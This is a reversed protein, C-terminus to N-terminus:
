FKYKVSVEWNRPEAKTVILTPAFSSGIFYEEDTVNNVRLFVEWKEGRYFLNANWTFASPLKITKENDNFFSSKYQPGAGFGFGNDFTYTAFLNATFLPYGQRVRDPNNAYRAQYQAPTLSPFSGKSNNAGYQISGSTLAVNQATLPLTTFPFDGQYVSEQQGINSSITFHNTPKYVAEIEYGRSEYSSEGSGIISESLVTKEFKYASATLFLKRDLLAFKTGVEYFPAQIFNRETGIGGTQGPAVSTGDQIAAYISWWDSIKFIPNISYNQYEEDGRKSGGANKSENPGKKSFRTLEHRIGTYVTFFKTFDVKTQLFAGFQDSTSKDGSVLAWGISPGALSISGPPIKGNSIDRRNFPELFFDVADNVTQRRWEVGYQLAIPIKGLDHKEEILLKENVAYGESDHAFGYSSFKETESSEVLSKLTISRGDGKWTLDGFWVGIQSNAYDNRDALVTDGGIKTTLAKGGAAFYGPTYKYGYLNGGLNVLTMQAAPGSTYAGGPGTPVGFVKQFDAARVVLAIDPNYIGKFASFQQNPSFNGYTAPNAFGQYPGSTAILNPDADGIIYNSNDILDQTVRNWGANENSKFNYYEGGTFFTLKPTLQGKLAGYVSVYDNKLNKYYAESQQNTISIRYAMPKGLLEVPGGVDVQAKYKNYEGLTFEVSGRQKDFYPTKPITEVYGGANTIGFHAPAPGKHIEFSEFSGFSTPTENQNAIRQMGNFFVSANDGRIFPLGPIGFINPRSLGAGSRDLDEFGDIALEQLDKISLVVTSRPLDLASVSGLFAGGVPRDSPLISDLSQVGSERVIFQELTVVNSSTAAAEPPPTAEPAKDQALAILPAALLGLGYGSSLLKRKLMSMYSITKNNFGGAFLSGTLSYISTRRL